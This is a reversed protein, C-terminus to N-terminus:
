YDSQINILTSLFKLYIDQNFKNNILNTIKYVGILGRYEVWKQTKM